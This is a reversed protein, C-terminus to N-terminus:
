CVLFFRKEFDINKCFADRIIDMVFFVVNEIMKENRM